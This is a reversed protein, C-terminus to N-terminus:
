PLAVQGWLHALQAGDVTIRLEDAAHAFSTEELSRLAALAGLLDIGSRTAAVDVVVVRQRAVEYRLATPPGVDSPWAGEVMLAERLAALAAVFRAHEDDITTVTVLETRQLGARDIVVIPVDRSVTPRDPEALLLQTTPATLPVDAVGTVLWHGAAGSLLVAVLVNPRLLVASWRRRRRAAAVSV